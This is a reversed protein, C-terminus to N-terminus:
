GPHNASASYEPQCDLLYLNLYKLPITKVRSFGSTAAMEQLHGPKIRHELPPGINEERYPWELVALRLNCVRASEQLASLPHDSEHLRGARMSKLYNIKIEITSCQEDDELLTSLAGGMGTDALSYVVGGHLTGYPNLHSDTIVLETRCFGKEMETFRLGILDCFRNAPKSTIPKKNPM